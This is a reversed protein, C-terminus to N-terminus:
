PRSPPTLCRVRRTFEQLIREAIIRSIRADGQVLSTLYELWLGPDVNKILYGQAGCRIAEFLDQPDDSVSLVVCPATKGGPGRM